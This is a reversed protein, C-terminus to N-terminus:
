PGGLAEFCCPVEDKSFRLRYKIGDKNKDFTIRGRVDIGNLIVGGADDATFLAIESDKSCRFIYTFTVVTCVYM